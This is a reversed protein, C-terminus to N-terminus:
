ELSKVPTGEPVKVQFQEDTIPGNPKLDDVTLVIQLEEVPRKIIITSPYPTSDFDRYNAYFVQTEINGTSDYTDQQYPLLDDRHFRVVRVPALEQTGAKRQMISLIYEPVLFLHKKAADAITSTESTVMFQGDPDVGKVLMADFFIKPRLNELQNASKKKLTNPGRYAKSLVPISVTFDKGDSAMDFVRTGLVPVMGVVRLSEPKRMVIQGRITTYDKALGEKQKLVSLQIQVKATLSNISQWRTNLQNVLESPTVTQTVVPPKPVPLKHTTFVCGSLLLAPLTMATVAATRSFVRM